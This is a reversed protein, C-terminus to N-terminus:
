DPLISTIYIFIRKGKSAGIGKAKKYSYVKGDSKRRVIVVLITFGATRDRVILM